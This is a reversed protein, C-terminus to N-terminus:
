SFQQVPKKLKQGTILCSENSMLTVMGLTLLGSTSTESGSSTM